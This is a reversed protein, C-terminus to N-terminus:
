LRKWIEAAKERARILISGEDVAPIEGGSLKVEGAVMVVDPSLAESIGAFLLHSLFNDADIPTPPRYNWIVLDAAYGSALKGFPLGFFREALAYNHGLIKLLDGDGLVTPDGTVHHALLRAALLEGLIDCGFGDTGIGVKIGRALMKTIPAAGVANNMNSRPNHVLSAPRESLLELEAGSLQIGHILLSGEALIGFRDLREATRMGYKQLSDVPDEKGEALHVHFPLNLPEAAAVAKELSEDSLTFSAHLGMHAAAHGPARGEGAFRVNEAIGADREAAGGRDTVEYCLDARMGLEDVVARKIQSLSGEIASPSAHHDFIATIGRRLHWIGGVLASLYVEELGLVRDLKWWLGELIERFNRPSFDALPMGRALTSYLHGHANILGPTLLKGEADIREAGPIEPAPGAGVREIREGEIVVYGKDLFAGTFDALVANEIIKVMVTDM